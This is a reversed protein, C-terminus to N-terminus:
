RAEANVPAPKDAVLAAQWAGSRDKFAQHADNDSLHGARPMLIIEKPSSVQNLAAYIGAPPCLDDVLAIGVLVPCRIRPAFNVIDFYRSASIAAESEQGKKWLRVPWGPNRGVSAGTLDCGAPVNAIAATVAPHLGATMLTQLGGQSGGTVLLTKGDWDPRETLYQVARYCSLYMRLFYCTERDQNGIVWYEKLPGKFQEAYFEPDKDIPLDHAQINLAIWGKTAPRTIASNKLGSVGAAQVILMAPCKGEAVPRAIHGHIRTGRINNMTIQWYRADARDSEAATLKPEAPVRALEDLKAQWFKDFDDPRPASPKIKEPSIVAGGYYNTRRNDALLVKIELFMTGPENLRSTIETTGNTLTLIGESIKTLGGRKVTYSANTANPSEQSVEVRWVIPDNPAYIGNTHNSTVVVRPGSAIGSSRSSQTIALVAGILAFLVFRPKM